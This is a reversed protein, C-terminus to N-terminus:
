SSRYVMAIAGLQRWVGLLSVLEPLLRPDCTTCLHSGSSVCEDSLLLAREGNPRSVTVEIRCARGAQCGCHACVFAQANTEFSGSKDRSM